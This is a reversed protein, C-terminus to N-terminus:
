KIWKRYSEDLVALEELTDLEVLANKDVEQIGIEIQNLLRDVVEDWFLKGTDPLKYIKEIQQKLLKMDNEVLYAVGTMNYLDTGGKKIKVIRDERMDFVWDDSYGRVMKGYYVSKKLETQFIKRNNVYIDAECIFCPNEGLYENVAYVSSINNKTMYEKNEVLTVERYKTQLYEFMEKKYGVVIYMHGINRLLLGQIMTEILPIGNVRVLPKPIKDTLPRMRSGLGAAMLVAIEEKM